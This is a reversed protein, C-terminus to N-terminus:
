STSQLMYILIKIPHYPPNRLSENYITYLQVSHGFDNYDVNQSVEVLVGQKFVKQIYKMIGLTMNDSILCKHAITKYVYFVIYIYYLNRIVPLLWLMNGM